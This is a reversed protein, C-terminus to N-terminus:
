ERMIALLEKPTVIKIGKCLSQVKNNLLHKKDLTVLYHCGTSMAGVIVHIDKAEIKGLWPLLEKEDIHDCVLISNNILLDDVKKQSIHQLKIINNHLEEVVTQSTIGRILKDKISTILAYSGGTPSYLASFLVSADLFVVKKQLNM